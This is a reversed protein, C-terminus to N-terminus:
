STATNLQPQTLATNWYRFRRLWGNLASTGATDDGLRLSNIGSPLSSGGFTGAGDASGNASSLNAGAAYAVGAKFASLAAIASLSGGGNYATGSITILGRPVSATTLGVVINNNATGDNFSALRANHQTNPARIMADVVFSGASANFWAPNAVSLNDAARTVASASTPIFSTPVRGAEMQAGWVYVSKSTGTYATGPVYSASNAMCIGAVANGSAGFSGSVSVRYWGNGVNQISAATAASSGSAGPASITGNVLDAIVYIYDTTALYIGVYQASVYKLFVSETYITGNTVSISNETRNTHTNNTTNETISAATNTGDPATAVNSGLTTQWLHWNSTNGMATSYPVLNTRQEEILLGRPSLAGPDYDFRPADSSAQTLVGSANYYWGSSARAFTLGAPMSSLFTWDTIAVPSSPPLAPSDGFFLLM